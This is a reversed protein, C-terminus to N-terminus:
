TKGTLIMQSKISAHDHMIPDIMYFFPCQKEVADTVDGGM